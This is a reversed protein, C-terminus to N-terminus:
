NIPFKTTETILAATVSSAFNELNPNIQGNITKQLPLKMSLPKVLKGSKKDFVYIRPFLINPDSLSEELDGMILYDNSSFSSFDQSKYYATEPTKSTSLNTTGRANLLDYANKIGPNMPPNYGTLPRYDGAEIPIRQPTGDEGTIVLTFDTPGSIGVSPQTEIIAAFNGSLVSASLKSYTDPDLANYKGIVNVIKAQYDSDKEKGQSINVSKGLPIAGNKIYAQSILENIKNQSVDRLAYAKGLIMPSATQMPSGYGTIYRNTPYLVNMIDQMQNQFKARLRIEAKGRSEGQERDTSIDKFFNYMDPRLNIFDLIDQSSLNVVQGNQLTIKEPTIKM